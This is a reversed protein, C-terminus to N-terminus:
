GDVRGSTVTGSVTTGAASSVVTLDGGAASLWDRMSLLGSGATDALDFGALDFGPGDDAVAFTLTDGLYALRVSVTASSRVHRFISRCRTGPRGPIGNFVSARRERWVVSGM